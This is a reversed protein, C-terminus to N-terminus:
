RINCTTGDWKGLNIRTQALLICDYDPSVSSSLRIDGTLSPLGNRDFYFIKLGSTLDPIISNKTRTQLVITDGPSTKQLSGDGDPTYTSLMGDYTDEYVTYQNNVSFDVFHLRNRQMARLRTNMLDVYMARIEREVGAKTVWASYQVGAIAMLIGAVSVVILLEILSFGSNGKIKKEFLDRDFRYAKVVKVKWEFM